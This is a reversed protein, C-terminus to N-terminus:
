SKKTELAEEAQWILQGLRWDACGGKMDAEYTERLYDVMREYLKRNVTVTKRPKPYGM